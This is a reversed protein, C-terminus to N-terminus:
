HHEPIPIAILDKRDIMVGPRKERASDGRKESRRSLRREANDGLREDAASV